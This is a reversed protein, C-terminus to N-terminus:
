IKEHLGVTQPASFRIIVIVVGIDSTHKSLGGVESNIEKVVNMSQQCLIVYPMRDMLAIGTWIKEVM